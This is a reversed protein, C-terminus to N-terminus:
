LHPTDDHSIHPPLWSHRALDVRGDPLFHVGEAELLARQQQAGGFAFSDALCGQKNVVRHCPIIGPAPNAHLAYGVVRAWRVNGALAAVQGYSAVKGRPISQVVAYIRAFVAGQQAASM